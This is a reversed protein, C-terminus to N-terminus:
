SEMLKKYSPHDKPFVQPVLEKMANFMATAEKKRRQLQYMNGLSRMTAVMDPHFEFGDSKLMFLAKKLMEEAVELRGGLRM